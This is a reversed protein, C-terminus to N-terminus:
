TATATSGPRGAASPRVTTSGFEEVIAPGSSRQGPALDARRHIPCDVFGDGEFYVPASGAPELPGPRGGTEARALSPRHVEGVAQVRLNVLEVEQQGRYAYGFTRDHVDHFREVTGRPRRRRPVGSPAPVQM